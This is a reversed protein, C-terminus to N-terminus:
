RTALYKMHTRKISNVEQEPGQQSTSATPLTYYQSSITKINPYKELAKTAKTYISKQHRDIYDEIYKSDGFEDFVSEPELTSCGTSTGTSWKIRWWLELTGVDGTRSPKFYRVECDIISEFEYEEENTMRQDCEKVQSSSCEHFGWGGRWGVRM